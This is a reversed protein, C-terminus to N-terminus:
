HRKDTLYNLEASMDDFTSHIDSFKDQVVEVLSFMHQELEDALELMEDHFDTFQLNNNKVLENICDKFTDITLNPHEFPGLKESM